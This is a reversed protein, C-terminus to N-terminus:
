LASLWRAANGFCSATPPRRPRCSRPRTGHQPLHRDSTGAASRTGGGRRGARDGACGRCRPSHVLAFADEVADLIGRDMLELAAPLIGAAIIQSVVQSADDISAFAARVTRCAEPLRTLRAWIKTVIALTGESGCVVRALDLAAPDQVPGFEVISGDPLVIELGAIHNATM